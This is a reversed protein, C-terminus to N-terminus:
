HPQWLCISALPSVWYRHQVKYVLDTVASLSSNNTKFIRNNVSMAVNHSIETKEKLPFEQFENPNLAKAPIVATPAVGPIDPATIGFTLMLM